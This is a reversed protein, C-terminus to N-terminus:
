PNRLKVLRINGLNKVDLISYAHNKQLGRGAFVLTDLDARGCSAGFVFNAEKCSLLRAWHLEANVLNEDSHLQITECPYGTL